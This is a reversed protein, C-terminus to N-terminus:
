NINKHTENKNKKAMQIHITKKSQTQKQWLDMIMSKRNSEEENGRNCNRDLCFNTECNNEENAM